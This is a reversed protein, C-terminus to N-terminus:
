DYGGVGWILLETFWYNRLDGREVFEVGAILNM